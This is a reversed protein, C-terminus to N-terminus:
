GRFAPRLWSALRSFTKRAGAIAGAQDEAPLGELREKVARWLPGTMDGHPDFYHLGGEPLWAEDTLRKIIVRGGLTSGEMVYISGWAEASSALDAADACLPLEAIDAGLTTLDRAALPARRRPALFAEDDIWQAVAPEWSAHFGYFRGILLTVRDRDLPPMLLGLGDELASHLDATAQKLREPLLLRPAELIMDM